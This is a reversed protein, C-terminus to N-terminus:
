LRSPSKPCCSSLTGLITPCEACTPPLSTLGVCWAGKGGLLYGKTSMEKLPQTTGQAVTCGSLKLWHFIGIIGRSNFGRSESKHHWWTGWETVCVRVKSLHESSLFIMCNWLECTFTIAGVNSLLFNMYVRFYLIATLTGHQVYWDMCKQACRKCLIKDLHSSFHLL